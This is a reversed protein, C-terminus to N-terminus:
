FRITKKSIHLVRGFQTLPRKLGADEEEASLAAEKPSFFITYADSYVAHPVGHEMFTRQLVRFYGDLRETEELWLAVVASTADDIAGHLSLLSGTSLWDFPSADIQIMDGMKLRRERRLRKRPTKHSCPIFISREKLIRLISKVFILDSSCM